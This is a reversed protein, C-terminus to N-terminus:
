DFLTAKGARSVNPGSPIKIVAARMGPVEIYERISDACNSCM